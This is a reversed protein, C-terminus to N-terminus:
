TLAIQNEIQKRKKGVRRCTTTRVVCTYTITNVTDYVIVAWSTHVSRRTKLLKLKKCKECLRRFANIARSRYVKLRADLTRRLRWGGPTNSTINSNFRAYTVAAAFHDNVSFYLSLSRRRRVRKRCTILLIIVCRYIYM